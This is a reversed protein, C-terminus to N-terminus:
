NPASTLILPSLVPFPSPFSRPLSLSLCPLSSLFRLSHSASTSIPLSFTFLIPTSPSLSPSLFPSLLLLLLSSLFYLSHSPSPPTSFILSLASLIPYLPLYLPLYLHLPLPLSLPLPLALPLALALPLLLSLALALFPLWHSVSLPTSGLLMAGSHRTPHVDLRSHPVGFRGTGSPGSCLLRM